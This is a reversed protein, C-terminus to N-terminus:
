SPWFAAEPSSEPLGPDEDDEPEPEDVLEPEPALESLSRMCALPSALVGREVPDSAMLGEGVSGSPAGDFGAWHSFPWTFGLSTTIIPSEYM